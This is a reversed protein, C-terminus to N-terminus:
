VSGIVYALYGGIQLSIKRNQRARELKRQDYFNYASDAYLKWLQTYAKLPFSFIFLMIISIKMSKM